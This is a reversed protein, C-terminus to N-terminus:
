SSLWKSFNEGETPHMKGLNVNAKLFGLVSGCDYRNGEYPFALVTEKKLLSNIADTLQIEKNN